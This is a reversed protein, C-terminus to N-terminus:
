PFNLGSVTTTGATNTLQVTVSGVTSANGTVPFSVAAQFASGPSAGGGAENQYFMEFQQSFNAQIPEGLPKGSLDYFTFTMAGISYTNDFGTISVVLASTENTASASAVAVPAPAITATTTASGSIGIAGADVTFTITGETTGTSFTAGSQNNLLLATAGQAVSFPVVRSSTAVFEVATDDTVASTSPTFSMTITGNAASQAPSPLAATLVYQTGSQLTSANFSLVPAPLPNLYGTGSLYFTAVGVTLTGAYPIAAPATFTVSFTISQGAPITLSSPISGQFASGQLAVPSVLLAQTYPNTLTFNCSVQGTQPVRGFSVNGLADPGTCPAGVTLGAAQAVTGQFSVVLSNVELNASYNGVPGGTFRVTFDFAKGPAVVYPLTSTNVIAFGIGSLALTGITVSTAATNTAAFTVSLTAYPAISGFNYSTTIPTQTSGNLVSLAIQAHAAPAAAVAAFMALTLWGRRLRM